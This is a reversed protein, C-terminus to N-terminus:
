WETNLLRQNDQSDDDEDDDNPSSSDTAVPEYLYPEVTEDPLDSSMSESGADSVSYSDLSVLVKQLM